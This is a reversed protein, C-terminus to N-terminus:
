ASMTEAETRVMAPGTLSSSIVKSLFMTETRGNAVSSSGIRVLVVVQLSLFSALMLTGVSIQVGPFLAPVGHLEDELVMGVGTLDAALM